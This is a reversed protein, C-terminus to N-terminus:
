VMWALAPLSRPLRVLFSTLRAFLRVQFLSQSIQEM